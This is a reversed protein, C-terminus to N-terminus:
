GGRINDIQFGDALRYGQIQICSFAQKTQHYPIIKTGKDGLFGM